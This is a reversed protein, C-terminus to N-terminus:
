YKWGPLRHRGGFIRDDTLIYKIQENITNEDKFLDKMDILVQPNLDQIYSLINRDDVGPYMDFVIIHDNKIENKLYSIIRNWGKIVSDNANQIQIIPNKNYKSM